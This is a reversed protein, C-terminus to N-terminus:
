PRRKAPKRQRNAWATKLAGQLIDPTVKSLRVLTAGRLGWKNPV